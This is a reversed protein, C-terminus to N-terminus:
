FCFEYKLNYSNFIEIIKQKLNEYYDNKTFLVQEWKKSLEPFNKELFNKIKKWHEPCKINLKDVYIKDPKILAFRNITKELNIDSIFPLLPGFFIYTKIGSIKLYNLAELRRQPMSSNPEFIKSLNEDLTTITMGVECNIKKFLDLDRVVLASKTLISIFFNKNKIKELLNRTIKYKEELPQYPDTVSSILINGPSRKKVEREIVEPANIKVDVFEGWKRNEKLIYPAYCYACSHACGRYPNISYNSDYLKSKSLISKCFIEKVKM